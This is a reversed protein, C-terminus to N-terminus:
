QACTNKRFLISTSIYNALLTNGIVQTQDSSGQLEILMDCAWFVFLSTSLFAQSNECRTIAEGLDLLLQRVSQFAQLPVKKCEGATVTVDPAQAAAALQESFEKIQEPTLLHDQKPQEVQPMWRVRLRENIDNNTRERIQKRAWKRIQEHGDHYLILDLSGHKDYAMMRVIMEAFMPSSLKEGLPIPCETGKREEVKPATASSKKWQEVEEEHLQLDEPKIVEPADDIGSRLKNLAVGIIAAEQSLARLFDVSRCGDATSGNHSPKQGCLLVGLLGEKEIFLGDLQEPPVLMGPNDDILHFVIIVCSRTSGQLTRYRQHVLSGAPFVATLPKENHTAEVVVPKLSGLIEQQFRLIMDIRKPTTFISANETSWVGKVSSFCNRCGKHTGPLFVFNQGKPGTPKDKEWSLLVKYEDTFPTDDIHLMNDSCLISVPPTDKGRADVIRVPGGIRYSILSVLLPHLFAANHEQDAIFDPHGALDVYTHIFSTSGHTALLANYREVFGEFKRTPLLAALIVAGNKEIQEDLQQFQKLLDGANESGYLETWKSRLEMLMQMRYQEKKPIDALGKYFEPALVENPRVLEPMDLAAVTRKAVADHLDCPSIDFDITYEVEGRPLNVVVSTEGEVHSM